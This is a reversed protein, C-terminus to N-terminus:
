LWVVSVGQYDVLNSGFWLINGKKVDVILLKLAFEIECLINLGIFM